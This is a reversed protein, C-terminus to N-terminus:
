QIISLFVLEKYKREMFEILANMKADEEKEADTRGEVPEIRLLISGGIPRNMIRHAVFCNLLLDQNYPSQIILVLLKGDRDKPLLIEKEDGFVKKLLLTNISFTTLHVNNKLVHVNHTVGTDKRLSYM